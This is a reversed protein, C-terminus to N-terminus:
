MGNDFTAYAFNSIRQAYEPTISKLVKRNELSTQTNATFCIGAVSAPIINLNTIDLSSLGAM